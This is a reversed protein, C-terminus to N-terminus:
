LKYKKHILNILLIAFFIILLIKLIYTYENKLYIDMRKNYYDAKKIITEM